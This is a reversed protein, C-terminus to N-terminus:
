FIIVPFYTNWEKEYVGQADVYTNSMVLKSRDVELKTEMRLIEMVAEIEMDYLYAPFEGNEKLEKMRNIFDLFSDISPQKKGEAKYKLYEQGMATERFKKLKM